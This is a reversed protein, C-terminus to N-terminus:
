ERRSVFIEDIIPKILQTFAATSLAVVVMCLLAAVIRGAQPRLYDRALRAVLAQTTEDLRPLGGAKPAREAQNAHNSTPDSLHAATVSNQPSRRVEFSVM